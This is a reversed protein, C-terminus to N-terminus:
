KVLQKWSVQIISAVEANRKPSTSIFRALIFVASLPSFVYINLPLISWVYDKYKPFSGAFLANLSLSEQCENRQM